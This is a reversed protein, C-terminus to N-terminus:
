DMQLKTIAILNEGLVLVTFKITIKYKLNSWFYHCLKLIILKMLIKLSMAFCNITTKVVQSM